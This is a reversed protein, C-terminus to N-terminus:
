SCPGWQALVALFDEIGVSYDANADRSCPGSCTVGWSNLVNLFDVIDVDEDGDTNATCNDLTTM